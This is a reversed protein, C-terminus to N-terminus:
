LDHKENKRWANKGAKKCARRRFVGILASYNVHIIKKTANQMKGFKNTCKQKCSLKKDKFVVVGWVSRNGRSYVKDNLVTSFARRGPFIESIGPIARQLFIM